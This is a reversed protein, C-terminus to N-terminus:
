EMSAERTLLEIYRKDFNTLSISSDRSDNQCSRSMQATLNITLVIIIPLLAAGYEVVHMTEVVYCSTCSFPRSGSHDLGCISSPFNGSIFILCFSYIGYLYFKLFM